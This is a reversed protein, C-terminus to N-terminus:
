CERSTVDSDNFIWKANPDGNVTFSAFYDYVVSKYNKRFIKQIYFLKSIKEYLTCIDLNRYQLNQWLTKRNRIAIKNKLRFTNFYIYIYLKESYKDTIFLRLLRNLEETEHTFLLLKETRESRRSNRLRDRPAFHDTIQVRAYARVNIRRQTFCAVDDLDRLLPSAASICNAPVSSIFIFGLASVKMKLLTTKHRLLFKLAFFYSDRFFFWRLWSFSNKINGGTHRFRQLKRSFVTTDRKKRDTVRHLISIM